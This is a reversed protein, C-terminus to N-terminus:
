KTVILKEQGVKENAHMLHILYLGDSLEATNLTTTTTQVSQSSVLQGSINYIDIQDIEGSYTLTANAGNTPNPYLEFKTQENDVSLVNGCVDFEEEYECGNADIIEATYTGVTLGTIIESTEGNSWNISYPATGGMIYLGIGGEGTGSEDCLIQPQTQIEEPQAITITEIKECGEMDTIIVTYDGAALDTRISDSAGDAWDIYYPGIGGEPSIVISGDQNGFCLPTQIQANTSMPEPNDVILSDFGFCGNEDTIKVTYLGDTLAVKDFGTSGDQWEYFYSSSNAYLDEATLYWANQECLLEESFIMADLHQFNEAMEVAHNANLRGAGILGAYQPNLSDVNDASEKLIYEIEDPTLCPNVSKMLGITGSVYPAAFSTGNGTLYWGSTVSLAVDYGPAAIDVKNNHQHTSTPDGANQEHNDMPGVSTVSIVHDHSAPYVHAWAGGCTSGNGAAAVMTTGNGHIENLIDQYYQFDWCGSTWSINIVDVDNYSALLLDNYNMNYLQLSCDSGISSKGEMNDTNGAATIAVATGHYLNTSTFPANIFTTSGDLEEHNLDYNTDSIAIQVSTDGKTQDWAYEAEINYLAYDSQFVLSMDNPQYLPQYHPGNVADSVPLSSSNLATILDNENCACEIEYVQQLAPSQSAPVAQKCSTINQMNILAQFEASSSIMSGKEEVPIINPDEITVWVIGYNNSQAFTHVSFWLAILLLTYALTKM